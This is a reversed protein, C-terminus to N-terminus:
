DSETSPTETIVAKVRNLGIKKCARWRKEGEIIQFWYDILELVLPELLGRSKIDQCLRLIVDEEFILRRNPQIRFIDIERIQQLM